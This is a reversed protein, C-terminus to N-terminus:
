NAEKLMLLKLRRKPMTDVVALSYLLAILIQSPFLRTRLNKPMSRKQQIIQPTQQIGSSQESLIM